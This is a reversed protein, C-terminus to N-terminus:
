SGKILAVRGSENNKKSKSNNQLLKIANSFFYSSFLPLKIMWKGFDGFVYKSLFHVIIASTQFLLDDHIYLSVGNLM